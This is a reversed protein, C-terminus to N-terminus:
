EGAVIIVHIASPIVTRLTLLKNLHMQTNPLLAVWKFAGKYRSSECKGNLWLISLSNKSSKCLSSDPCVVAVDKYDILECLLRNSFLKHQVFQIVTRDTCYSLSQSEASLTPSKILARFLNITHGVSRNRTRTHM